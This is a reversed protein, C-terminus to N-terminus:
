IWLIKMASVLALFCLIWLIVPGTAGAFKMPGAQFEIPGHLGRFFQVVGVAVIICFPIGVVSVFQEEFVRIWAGHNYGDYLVGLFLACLGALSVAFILVGTLLVASRFSREGWVQGVESRRESMPKERDRSPQVEVPIM